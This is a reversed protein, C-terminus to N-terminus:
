LVVGEVHYEAFQWLVHGEYVQREVRDGWWVGVWVVETMENDVVTCDLWAAPGGGALILRVVQRVGVGYVRDYAERQAEDREDDERQEDEAIEFLRELESSTFEYMRVLRDKEDSM